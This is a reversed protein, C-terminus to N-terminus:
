PASGVGAAGRPEPRAGRMEWGEPAAPSVSRRAERQLVLLQLAQRGDLGLQLAHGVLQMLQPPASPQRGGGERGAATERGSRETLVVSCCCRAEIGAARAGLGAERATTNHGDGSRAGVSRQGRRVDLQGSPGGYGLLAVQVQIKKRKEREREREKGGGGKRNKLHCSLKRSLEGGVPLKM